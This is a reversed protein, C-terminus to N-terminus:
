QRAYRGTAQPQSHVYKEASEKLRATVWGILMPKLLDFVMKGGLVLLSAKGAESPLDKGKGRRIHAPIKASKTRRFGFAALLLGVGAAGGIWAGRHHTLSAKLKAQIDLDEGLDQRFDTLTSRARALESILLAKRDLAAM